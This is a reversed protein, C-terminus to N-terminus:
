SQTSVEYRSIYLPTGSQTHTHKGSRCHLRRCRRRGVGGRDRGGQAQGGRLARLLGHPRANGARGVRLLVAGGSVARVTTLVTSATCALLSHTTHTRTHAHTHHESVKPDWDIKRCSAAPVVAHTQWGSYSLVVDGKKLRGTTDQHAWCCCTALTLQKRKAFPPARTHATHTRQLRPSRGRCWRRSGQEAPSASGV